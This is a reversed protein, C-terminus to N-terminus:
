EMLNFLPTGGGFAAVYLRRHLLVQHLLTTWTSTLVEPPLVRFHPIKRFFFIYFSVLALSIM